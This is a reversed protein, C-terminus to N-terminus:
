IISVLVLRSISSTVVIVFTRPHASLISDKKHMLNFQIITSNGTGKKFQHPQNAFSFRAKDSRYRCELWGCSHVEDLRLLIRGGGV